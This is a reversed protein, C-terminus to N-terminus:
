YGGVGAVIAVILAFVLLGAFLGDRNEDDM